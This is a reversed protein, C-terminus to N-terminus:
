NSVAKHLYSALMDTFLKALWAALYGQNGDGSWTLAGKKKLGNLQFFSTDVHANQLFSSM